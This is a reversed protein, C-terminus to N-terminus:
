KELSTSLAQAPAPMPKGGAKTKPLFRLLLLWLAAVIATYESPKIFIGFDNRVTMLFPSFFLTAFLLTRYHESLLVSDMRALLTGFLAFILIIGTPGFNLYAEGVASFGTGGGAAFQEPIIHYSAWDTPRMDFLAEKGREAINRKLQQRSQSTDNASGITPILQQLYILYTNGLRYPEERPVIRVTHALVGITGGLENVASGVDADKATQTIQDISIDEYSSDRLYGVVPISLLVFFFGGALLPLPVRRGLKYWLILGTLAPYLAMSRTGSLLLILFGLGAAVYAIVRQTATRATLFLILIGPPFLMMFVGIVRPDNRYFLEVRSLKLINGQQVLTLFMLCASAFLLGMGIVRLRKLNYNSLQSPKTRSPVALRRSALCFTAFGCGFAGLAMSTYWEAEFIWQGFPGDWHQIGILGFGFRWFLGTHFMLLAILYATSFLFATRFYMLTGALYMAVWVVQALSTIFPWNRSTGSEIAVFSWVILLFSYLLFAAILAKQPVQAAVIRM